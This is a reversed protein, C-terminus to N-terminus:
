GGIGKKNLTLGAGKLIMYMTERISQRFLSLGVYVFSFICLCMAHFIASDNLWFHKLLLIISGAVVSTALPPLLTKFFLSVKIPTKNFCYFLSPILIAYNAITYSMAVGQIGYPLGVVFSTVCVIANFLGWYFFRKSFGCSILVLGRTSAISQVLGAITLIRFVPVVDIWQSGLLLRILFDAEVACYTTLPMALSALIDLIRQYYLAYRLPKKRLTSLVPMAVQELPNRIQSIPLMFLEYAKSYLGLADAGIFRGILINDANRSFYNIFNFGTLHGGFKLMKRVGTGRQMRGPIWPCFFVTLLSGTLANTLAGGVLAWYRWGFLALIITMALTIVQSIIQIAALTVFRMHRRQLAKHQITLGSFIFSISLAATVTTLEAKGYFWAVMPSSAIVCLGLFASILVNLWFLTSIQEHTIKEQQVTAMSLGADKFMAAFNVVVTVMGVMGYDSPTLLRALLVTSTVQLIFQIGQAGMTTMGGRVSKQALGSNLHNSAFLNQHDLPKM